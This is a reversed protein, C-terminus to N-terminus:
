LGNKTSCNRKVYYIFCFCIRFKKKFLCNKKEFKKGEFEIQQNRKGFMDFVRFLSQLFDPRDSFEEFLLLFSEKKM